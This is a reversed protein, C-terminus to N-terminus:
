DVFIWRVLVILGLVLATPLAIVALGWLLGGLTLMITFWDIAPATTYRAAGSMGPAVENIVMLGVAAAVGVIGFVLALRGLRRRRRAPSSADM